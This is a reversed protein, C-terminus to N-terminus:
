LSKYRGNEWVGVPEYLHDKGVIATNLPKGGSIAALKWTGTFHPAIQMLDGRADLLWWHEKHWVPTLQEVVYPRTNTFPFLALTEAEQKRVEKWGSVLGQLHVPPASVQKKILARLPVVSPYYVLEAEIFMGPTLSLVAGQARVLFQLVLATRGTSCGYLWYREVMLQDDQSVQKGLVLWTDPVGPGEKLEEQNQTFGIWGRIDQQLAPSLQAKNKYAHAILYINLLGDLCLTQWGEQFFNLKGLDKVLTALGGAQADVMRKAMQEWFSPQKGPLQMLGGRVIDKTWRLLEDIGASVKKERNEGRKAQATEDAKKEAVGAKQEEKETRKLIWEEVWAPMATDKFLAPQRAYLLLLGIGHKCPFKRSPCSCKFATDSLDIQTQYPKSGSGQCEGWLARECVGKSVWRAAGALGIGAKRSAEDPALRLIQEESFNM